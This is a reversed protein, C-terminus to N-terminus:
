AEEASEGDGSFTAGDLFVVMAIAPTREPALEPSDQSFLVRDSVALRRWPNQVLTATRLPVPPQLRFLAFCSELIELSNGSAFEAVLEELLREEFDPAL